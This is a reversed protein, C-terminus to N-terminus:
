RSDRSGVNHFPTSAINTFMTPVVNPLNAPVMDLLQTPRLNSLVQWLSVLHQFRLCRLMGNAVMVPGYSHHLKMKKIELM